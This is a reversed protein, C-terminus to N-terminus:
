GARLCDHLHLVGLPRRQDDLVVLATIPGPRHDEMTRVATAVLAEGAITSPKRSMVDQAKLKWPDAHKVLIRKFDGDSVVGKLIGKDDVVATIGLRKDMIELMVQRLSATVPVKPLSDRDHMLEDVRRSAVGGIVGGPHLFRFDEARFGRRELLAVLGVTLGAVLDRAFQRADYRRLATVSRPLWAQLSGATRSM